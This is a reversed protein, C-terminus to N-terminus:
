RNTAGPQDEGTAWRVGAWLPLGITMALSVLLEPWNAGGIGPPSMLWLVLTLATYVSYLWLAPFGLSIAVRMAPGRRRRDLYLLIVLAGLMLAIQPASEM